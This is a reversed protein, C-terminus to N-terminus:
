LQLFLSLTIDAFIFPSQGWKGLDFHSLQGMVPIYLLTTEYKDRVLKTSTEYWDRKLSIFCTRFKNTVQVFFTRSFSLDYVLIGYTDVLHHPQILCIKSYTTLIIIYKTVKDKGIRRLGLRLNYRLIQLHGRCFKVSTNVQM